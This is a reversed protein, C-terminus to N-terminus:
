KYGKIVENYTNAILASVKNRFQINNFTGDVFNKRQGFSYNGISWSEPFKDNTEIMIARGSKSEVGFDRGDSHFFIAAEVEGAGALLWQLWPIDYGNKSTYRGASGINDIIKQHDAFIVDIGLVRQRSRNVKTYTQLIEDFQTIFLQVEQDTLGFHAQIDWEKSNPYEGILGKYVPNDKLTEIFLEKVIPRVKKLVIENIKPSAQLGIQQIIYDKNKKSSPINFKM